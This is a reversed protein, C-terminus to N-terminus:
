YPLYAPFWKSRDAQDAAIMGWTVGETTEGMLFERDTGEPIYKQGPADIEVAALAHSYEPSILIFSELGVTRLFLSVLLARSDCDNPEGCIVKPLSTFDSDIVGPEKEKYPMSQVWTLIMQALALDPKEPNIKEAYPIFTNLMVEMCNKLRGWSDRFIIRYYRQWAEKWLNHQLYLSLVSFELDVLYQSAEEDSKDLVFNLKKGYLTLSVKKNGEKPFAYALIIGPYCYYNTDTCLSNLTSIIFQNCIEAESSPCYCLMVIYSNEKKLPSCVAWGSYDQDIKFNLEAISCNSENWKFNDTEPNNQINKISNKLTYESSKYEKGDYIKILFTVPINPHNFSFSNKQNSNSDYVYGEPIDFSFEYSDNHVIYANLSFVFFCFFLIISSFFRRTM